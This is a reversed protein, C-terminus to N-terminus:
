RAVIMKGTQFIGDGELVLFYIGAPIGSAEWQFVHKGRELFGNALLSISKGTIDIIKLKIQSDAALYIEVRTTGFFPNPYNQGLIATSEFLVDSIGSSNISPKGAEVWASYIMEALTNSANAYLMTTFGKTRNWLTEKYLYSSTNGAVQQAYDDAMLVSDVYFYNSYLYHFVYSNVDEVFSISDGSYSMQGLFTNIMSSEYRSHIGNNGSYQGNYNVTIHLPMYGDAVYHGLDSAFLVAKYWDRRLFCEVLSDYATVTAWPLIGQDQVFDIGYLAVVSDYTQPIRGNELFGPYNDIDIYHRPAEYPDTDKRDDADSAHAALTSSWDMFQSMEQNFSKSSELSIKYHGNYGWSSIFFSFLFIFFSFIVPKRNEM